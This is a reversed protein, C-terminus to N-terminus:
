EIKHEEHPVFRTFTYGIGAQDLLQELAQRNEKERRAEEKQLDIDNSVIGFVSARFKEGPTEAEQFRRVENWFRGIPPLANIAWMNHPKLSTYFVHEQGQKDKYDVEAFGIHDKIFDPAYKFADANTVESIPRGHFVSYGLALEFPRTILPSVIGFNGALDTRTLTEEIPTGLTRLLTIHSPTRDIVLQYGAQAWDPLMSREEESLQEAGWVDGITQVARIQQALRGPRQFLTKVQLELNKRTFTNGTITVFGKQRMVWTQNSTRPCWVKGNYLYHEKWTDKIGLHNRETINYQNTSYIARKGLLAALMQFTEGVGRLQCAFSDQKRMWSTVGDAKYMADYMAELQKRGLQGVFDCWNDTEKSRKLLPKIRKLREALVPVAVTGTEPHPKRPVGGAVAIVENLFKKPHQYIVAECCNGRFRFYGDTLLWGLLRADEVSWGSEEKLYRSSTVIKHGTNLEHAPLVKMDGKYDRVVWRHNFTASLSYRKSKIDTLFDNYPAVFKELMPQWEYENAVTNYTLIEDGVRIDKHLKWGERTLAETDEPVCYFPVIRRLFNREFDSINAYDFLAFKVREAALLPDGTRNLNALFAVVRCQDEITQGVKFGLEFAKNSRSLPSYKAWYVLAKDKPGSPALKHTIEGVEDVGFRVQDVMGLNRPHFAVINDILVRRMEGFSWKYGSRDTFVTQTLHRNVDELKINGRLYEEHLNWLVRENDLIKAAKVHTLPNISEMGIDSYMLFLNSLANRGHFAPWISTVSAKFWGQIDDYVQAVKGIEENDITHRMFKEASAAVDPHFLMIEGTESTLWKSLDTQYEPIDIRPMEVYNSPAQSAPKGFDRNLERLFRSITTHKIVQDSKVLMAVLANDEFDWGGAKAEAVMAQMRTYAKGTADDVFMGAQQLIEKEAIQTGRVVDTIEDTIDSALQRNRIIKDLLVKIGRPDKATAEAVEKVIKAFSDADVGRQIVDKQIEKTIKKLAEAEKILDADQAAKTTASVKAGKIPEDVKLARNLKKVIWEAEMPANSMDDLIKQIDPASVRGGAVKIGDKYSTRVRERIVREVLEDDIKETFAKTILSKQAPTILDGMRSSLVAGLRQAINGKVSTSLTGLEDSINSLSKTLEGVQRSSAQRMIKLEKQGQIYTLTRVSTTGEPTKMHFKFKADGIDELYGVARSGAEDVMASVAAMPGIKSGRSKVLMHPFHGPLDAVKEGSERLSRLNIKKQKQLMRLGAWVEPRITGGDPEIGHLAKWVDAARPDRPMLELEIAPTLFRLEENTLDLAHALKPLHNLLQNQQSEGLDRSRQILNIVGEPTETGARADRKFLAGLNKRLPATIHDLASMGPILQMTDAIRQTSLLTKGFFKIGGRDIFERVMVPNEGAKRAILQAVAQNARTVDLGADLTERVLFDSTTEDLAAVMRSAEKPDVGRNILKIRENIMYTHRLGDRKAQLFKSAIQDSKESFHLYTGLPRDLKQALRQDMLARGGQTVGLIGRGVGFTLYTLPDLLTDFSFKKVGFLVRELRSAEQGPDEIFLDGPTVRERIADGVTHEPSLAGAVVHLPTQITHIFRDLTTLAGQGIAQMISRRPSALQAAAEGVAGGQAMAMALLDDTTLGQNGGPPRVPQILM